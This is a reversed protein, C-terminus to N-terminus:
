LGEHVCYFVFVLLWVLVAIRTPATSTTIEVYYIYRSALDKKGTGNIEESLKDVVRMRVDNRTGENSFFRTIEYKPM